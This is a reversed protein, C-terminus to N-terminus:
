ASNMEGVPFVKKLWCKIVFTKIIKMNNAVTRKDNGKGNEEKPLLMYHEYTTLFAHTIDKLELNPKYEKLKSLISKYSRVTEKSYQNKRKELEQLFYDHANTTTQEQLFEKKFHNRTLPKNYLQTNLLIDLARKKERALIFNLKQYNPEGKTITEKQKNWNYYPLRDQPKLEKLKTINIPTNPM